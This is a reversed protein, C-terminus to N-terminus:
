NVTPRTNYFKQLRRTRVNCYNTGFLLLPWYWTWNPKKEPCVSMTLTQVLLKSAPSITLVLLNFNIQVYPMWPCSCLNVAISKCSNKCSQHALTTFWTLAITCQCIKKLSFHFFICFPASMTSHVSHKYYIILKGWMVRRKEGQQVM